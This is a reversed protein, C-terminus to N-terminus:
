YRHEVNPRNRFIRKPHPRKRTLCYANMILLARIKAFVESEPKINCLLEQKEYPYGNEQIRFILWIDTFM